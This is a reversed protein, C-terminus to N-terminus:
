KVVLRHDEIHWLQFVHGVECLCKIALITFYERDTEHFQVTPWYQDRLLKQSLVEITGKSLLKWTLRTRCLTVRTCLLLESSLRCLSSSRWPSVLTLRPTTFIELFVRLNRLNKSPWGFKKLSFVVPKWLNSKFIVSIKLWKSFTKFIRIFGGVSPFMCPAYSGSAWPSVSTNSSSTVRLELLLEEVDFLLFLLATVLKVKLPREFGVM